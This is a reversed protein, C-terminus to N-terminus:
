DFTNSLRNHEIIAKLEELSIDNIDAIVKLEYGKNLGSQISKLLQKAEGQEIGQEIGEEKAFDLVNRFDRYQNLSEIYKSREEPNYKALEAMTFVKKFIQEQFKPHLDHLQNLQKILFLWKEFRTELEEITKNFKPLEIYIYDLKEYFVRNEQDKLQIHHVYNAEEKRDELKFDMLSITYVPPLQYNWNSGKEASNQIPFTSYLITRDKFYRQSKRQIEVIFEEGKESTCYIDYVAVREWEGAGLQENVKYTVDAIQRHSPLLQNLFDILLDKNVVTGFLKKFGFDTLLNIYKQSLEDTTM